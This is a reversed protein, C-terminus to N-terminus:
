PPWSPPLAAIFGIVLEAREELGADALFRPEVRRFDRGICLQM